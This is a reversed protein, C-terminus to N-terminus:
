GDMCEVTVRDVDVGVEAVEVFSVADRICPTEQEETCSPCEEDGDEEEDSCGLGFTM